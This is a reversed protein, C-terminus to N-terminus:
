LSETIVRPVGLFCREALVMCCNADACTYNPTQLVRLGLARQIVDLSASVQLFAVTPQVRWLRSQQRSLTGTTEARGVQVNAVTRM